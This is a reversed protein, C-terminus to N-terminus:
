MADFAVGGLLTQQFAQRTQKNMDMGMATVSLTQLDGPPVIRRAFSLWLMLTHVSSTRQHDRCSKLPVSAMLQIEIEQVYATLVMLRLLYTCDIVHNGPLSPSYTEEYRDINWVEKYIYKAKIDM